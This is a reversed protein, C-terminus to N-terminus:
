EVAHMFSLVEMIRKNIQAKKKKATALAKECIEKPDLYLFGTNDENMHQPAIEYRTEAGWYDYIVRNNKDVKVLSIGNNYYPHHRVEFKWKEVVYLGESWTYLPVIDGIKLEKFTKVKKM